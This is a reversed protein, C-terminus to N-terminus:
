RPAESTAATLWADREALSRLHVVSEPPLSAALARLRPVITHQVRRLTARMRPWEGILSAGPPGGIRPEGAEVEMQREAAWQWHVWLPLDVLIFRDCRKARTEITFWPGFGDIIWRDGSAWADLVPALAPAPVPTWDARYQVTDVEHLPLHHHAALRRALTSKGGGGNGIVMIRQPTPHRDLPSATAAAAAPGADSM